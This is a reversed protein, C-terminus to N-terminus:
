VLALVTCLPGFPPCPSQLKNCPLGHRVEPSGGLFVQLDHSTVLKSHHTVKNQFVACCLLAKKAVHMGVWPLCLKFRGCVGIEQLLHIL